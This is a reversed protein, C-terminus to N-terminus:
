FNIFFSSALFANGSLVVCLPVYYLTDRKAFLSDKEKKFLGLYKFEGVARLLFVMGMILLGIRRYFEPLFPIFELHLLAGVFLALAVLFTAVPPPEFRQQGTKLVPFVGELAWQGGWLWYLHLLGLAALLIFNISNIVIM